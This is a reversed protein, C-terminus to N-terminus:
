VCIYNSVQHYDMVSSIQCCNEGHKDKLCNGPNPAFDHPMNLAHGLEHAFTQKIFVAKINTVTKIIEDYFLTKRRFSCYCLLTFINFYM